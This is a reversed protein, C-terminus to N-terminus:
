QTSRATKSVIRQACGIGSIGSQGRFCPRAGAVGVCQVASGQRERLVPRWGRRPPSPWWCSFRANLVQRRVCGVSVCVPKGLLAHPVTETGKSEGGCRRFGTTHCGVWSNQRPDISARVHSIIAATAMAYALRSLHRSGHHTRAHTHPPTHGAPSASGGARATGAGVLTTTAHGANTPASTYAHTHIQARVRPVRCPPGTCQLQKHLARLLHGRSAPAAHM